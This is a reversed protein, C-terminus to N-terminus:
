HLLLVRTTDQFSILRQTTMKYIDNALIMWLMSKGDWTHVQLAKTIFLM